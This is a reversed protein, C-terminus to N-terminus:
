DHLTWGEPIQVVWANKRWYDSEPHDEGETQRYEERNMCVIVKQRTTITRLKGYKPNITTPLNMCTLIAKKQPIFKWGIDDIVLLQATENWEDWNIQGRFYMHPALSKAWSTKGCRSDGVLILCPPRETNTHLFLEVWEVMPMLVNPFYTLGNPPHITTHDKRIYNHFSLINGFCTQLTKAEKERLIALADGVTPASAAETWASCLAYFDSIYDGDKTCYRAVAAENRAGAINPHYTEDGAELDFVHSDRIDLKKEFKFFAHIHYNGDEHLEQAILYKKLQWGKAGALTQIAELIQEKTAPCQSYTLFIGSSNLRFAKKPM